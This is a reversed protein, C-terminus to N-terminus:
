LLQLTFTISLEPYSQLPQSWCTHWFPALLKFFSSLLASNWLKLAFVMDSHSIYCCHWPCSLFGSSGGVGKLFNEEKSVTQLLCEPSHQFVGACLTAASSAALYRRLHSRFWCHSMEPYPFSSSSILSFSFNGGPKFINIPLVWCHRTLVKEQVRKETPQQLNANSIQKSSLEGLSEPSLPLHIKWPLAILHKPLKVETDQVTSTSSTFGQSLFCRVKVNM